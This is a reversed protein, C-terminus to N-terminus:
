LNLCYLFNRLIIKILTSIYYIFLTTVPNTSIARAKAVIIIGNGYLVVISPTKEVSNDFDIM